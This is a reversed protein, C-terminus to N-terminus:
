GIYCQERTEPEIVAKDPEIDAIYCQKRSQDEWVFNKIYIYMYSTILTKYLYGQSCTHFKSTPYM